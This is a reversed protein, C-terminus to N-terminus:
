FRSTQLAEYKCKHLERSSDRDPCQNDKSLPKMTKETGESIQQSLIEIIGSGSGEM